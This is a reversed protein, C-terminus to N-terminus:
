QGELEVRQKVRLFSCLGPMAAFLQRHQARSGLAQDAGDGSACAPSRRGGCLRVLWIHKSGSCQQLGWRISRAFDGM